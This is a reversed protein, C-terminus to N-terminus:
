FPTLSASNSCGPINPDEGLHVTVRFSNWANWLGALREAFGSTLSRIPAHLKM